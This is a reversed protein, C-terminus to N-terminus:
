LATHCDSGVSEGIFCGVLYRLVEGLMAFLLLGVALLITGLVEGVIAVLTFGVISFMEGVSFGDDAFASVKSMEVPYSPLAYPFPFINM